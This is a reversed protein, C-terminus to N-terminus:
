AKLILFFIGNMPRKIHSKGRESAANGSNGISDQSFVFLITLKKLDDKFMIKSKQLSIVNLTTVTDELM